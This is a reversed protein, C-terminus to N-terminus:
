HLGEAAILEVDAIHAARLDALLRRRDGANDLPFTTAAAPDPTFRRSSTTIQVVFMRDHGRRCRVIVRAPYTLPEASVLEPGATPACDDDSTGAPESATDAVLIQAILEPTLECPAPTNPETHVGDIGSLVLADWGKLRIWEALRDATGPELQQRTWVIVRPLEVLARARQARRQTKTSM